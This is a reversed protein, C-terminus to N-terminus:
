VREQHGGRRSMSVPHDQCQQHERSGRAGHDEQGELHLQDEPGSLDSPLLRSHVGLGVSVKSDFSWWGDKGCECQHGKSPAKLPKQLHPCTGCLSGLTLVKREKTLPSGPIAPKLPSCPGLPSGTLIQGYGKDRWAAARHPGPGDGPWNGM